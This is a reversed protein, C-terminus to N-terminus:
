TNRNEKVKIGATVRHIFSHAAHKYATTYALDIPSPSETVHGM